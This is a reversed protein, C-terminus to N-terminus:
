IVRLMMRLALVLHLAMMSPHRPPLLSQPRTTPTHPRTTQVRVHPLVPTLVRHRLIWLSKTQLLSLLYHLM